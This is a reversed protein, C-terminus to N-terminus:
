RAEDGCNLRSAKGGVNATAARIVVARDRPIATPAPKAAIVSATVNWATIKTAKARAITNVPM